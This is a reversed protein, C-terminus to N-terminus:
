LFANSSWHGIMMITFVPVGTLYMAMAASSWISHTCIDGISYGLKAEGSFTVAARIHDLLMKSTVEMLKEKPDLITNVTINPGTYPGCFIFCTDFLCM